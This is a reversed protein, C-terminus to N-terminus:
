TYELALLLIMGKNLKTVVKTTIFFKASNSSENYTNTKFSASYVEDTDKLNELMAEYDVQHKFVEAFHKEDRFTPPV